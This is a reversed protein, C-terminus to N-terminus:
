HPIQLSVHLEKLLASQANETDLQQLEREADSRMGLKAFVAANLLHSGYPRAAQVSALDGANMTTFRKEGPLADLMGAATDARVSWTYAESTALPKDAMWETATLRESRMVVQGSADQVEVRYGKAGDLPRWRFVPLNSTKEDLPALAAFVKEDKPLMVPKLTLPLKRQQLVQELLAADETPLDTVGNLHGAGDLGILKGEDVLQVQAGSEGANKPTRKQTVVVSFVLLAALAGLGAAVGITKKSLPGPTLESM